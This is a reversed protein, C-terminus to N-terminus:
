QSWRNARLDANADAFLMSLPDSYMKEFAEEPAVRSIRDKGMWVTVGAYGPRSSESEQRMMEIAGAFAKFQAQVKSNLFQKENRTIDTVNYTEERWKIFLDIIEQHSKM